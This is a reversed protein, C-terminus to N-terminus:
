TAKCTYEYDGSFHEAIAELVEQTETSLSLEEFVEKALDGSDRAHSHPIVSDMDHGFGYTLKKREEEQMTIPKRGPPNCGPCESRPRVTELAVQRDRASIPM